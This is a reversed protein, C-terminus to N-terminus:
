RGEPVLDVWCKTVRQKARGFVRVGNEDEWTETDFESVVNGRFPAEVGESWVHTVASAMCEIQVGRFGMLAAERMLWRAMGAMIGEGEYDARTSTANRMLVQGPATPKWSEPPRPDRAELIGYLIVFEPLGEFLPAMEEPDFPEIGDYALAISVLPFDMQSLMRQGEAARGQTTEISPETADWFLKGGCAEAERTKYTYSLDFVGYSLGSLIQHRVIYDL